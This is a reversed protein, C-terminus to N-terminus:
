VPALLEASASRVFACVRAFVHLRVRTSHTFLFHLISPHFFPPNILLQQRHPPSAVRLLKVIVSIETHSSAVGVEWKRCMVLPSWLLGDTAWIGLFLNLKLKSSNQFASPFFFPPSLPSVSLINTNKEYLLRSLGNWDLMKSWPWFFYAVTIQLDRCSLVQTHRCLQSFHPNM